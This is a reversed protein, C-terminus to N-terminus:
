RRKTGLHICVSGFNLDYVRVNSLGADEMMRALEERSHFTQISEPLYTYAERRSLLAGIRPLVKLEYFRVLPRWFRSRPTNFELCVVRGGPKAVRAMEAFAQQINTVNRIGFGVTVCDFTDSRYPLQLADGLMLRIRGGSARDTKQRGQQIMPACFDSGIVLGTPGVDRYLDIAFDGTGACVDLAFDGPQLNALRVAYRRWAKHRRFSLISNLLDYRHAIGAFMERVYEARDGTYHGPTAQEARM